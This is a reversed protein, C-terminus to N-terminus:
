WVVVMLIWYVCAGLSAMAIGLRMRGKGFIAFLLGIAGLRFGITSFRVTEIRAGWESFHQSLYLGIAMALLLISYVAGVRSVWIRWGTMEREKRLRHVAYIAGVPFGLLLGWGLIGVIFDVVQTYRHM